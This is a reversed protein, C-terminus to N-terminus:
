RRTAEYRDFAQRASTLDAPETDSGRSQLLNTVDIQGRAGWLTPELKGTTADVCYAGVIFHDLQEVAKGKEIAWPSPSDKIQGAGLRGRYHDNYFPTHEGGEWHDSSYNIDVGWGNRDLHNAWRKIGTVGLQPGGPANLIQLAERQLLVNLHDKKTAIEVRLVQIFKIDKIGENSTFTASLSGNSVSVNFVGRKVQITARVPKASVLGFAAYHHGTPDVFTIPANGVYESLNDTGGAFGIPDESIWRGAFPDYWRNINNQLGITIDFLKGTYFFRQTIGPASDSVINGFADLRRHKV